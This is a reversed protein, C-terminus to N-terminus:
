LLQENEIKKRRAKEKKKKKTIWVQNCHARVGLDIFKSVNYM